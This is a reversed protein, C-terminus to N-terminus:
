RCKDCSWVYGLTHQYLKVPTRSGCIECTGQKPKVVHNVKRHRVVTLDPRNVNIVKRKHDHTENRSIQLDCATNYKYIMSVIDFTNM